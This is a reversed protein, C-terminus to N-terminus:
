KCNTNTKGASAPISGGMVTDEDHKYLKGRVRPSLGSYMAAEAVAVTNEGCERPYVRFSVSGIPISGTKGASAPISGIIDVRRPANEHKGRVRPSLGSYMSM